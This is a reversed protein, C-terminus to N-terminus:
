KLINKNRGSFDAALLLTLILAFALLSLVAFPIGLLAEQSQCSTAGGCFITTIPLYDQMLQYLAFGMGCLIQYLVFQWILYFEQYVAVALIFVLPFLCIRQYWCLSCPTLGSEEGFYLSGLSGFIAILWAFYLLSIRM